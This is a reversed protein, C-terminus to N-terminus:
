KIKIIHGILLINADDIQPNLMMLKAVSVNQEVAISSLTDHEKISYYKAALVNMQSQYVVTNSIQNYEDQQIEFENELTNVAAGLISVTVNLTKIKENQQKQQAIIEDNSACGSVILSSLLSIIITINKKKNM